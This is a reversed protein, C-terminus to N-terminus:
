RVHLFGLYNVGRYNMKGKDLIKKLDCWCDRQVTVCGESIRGPHLGFGTRGNANTDLYGYYGSADEKRAHLDSWDIDKHTRIPQMLYENRPTPGGVRDETGSAVVIPCTHSEGGNRCTIRRADRAVLCVTANPNAAPGGAPSGTFLGNVDAQNSLPRTGLMAWTGVIQNWLAEQHKSGHRADYEKRSELDKWSDRLRKTESIDQVMAWLQGQYQNGHSADYNKRSEADKLSSDLQEDTYNVYDVVALGTPDAVSSPSSRAYQYLNMGDAYQDSGVPDQPIFGGVVAPGTAGLRAPSGAGAGPDRQLFRGMTPHYFAHADATLVAIAAFAVLVAILRTTRM